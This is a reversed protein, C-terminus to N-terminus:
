RLSMIQDIIFESNKLSSDFKTRLIETMEAADKIKAPEAVEYHDNVEMYIGSRGHAITKSPEIKTQIWGSARDSLDQQIMTLSLLGGHKPGEGSSVLKGWEGWPGRPALLKGIRERTEPSGVDFHVLRNIGM